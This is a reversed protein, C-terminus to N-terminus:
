EAIVVACDRPDGLARCAAAAADAGTGMAWRGTGPSIALAKSGRARRFERSVAGTAASSLQLAREEWGRPRIEAVIVCARSGRAREANCRELALRAPAEVDHFNAFASVSQALVGEDPSAAIAGYYPQQEAVQRLLGIDRESLFDHAFTAVESRNAAFLLGRAERGDVPQQALGAGPGVSWIAAMLCAALGKQM